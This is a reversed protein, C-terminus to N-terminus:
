LSLEVPSVLVADADAYIWDGPKIRVNGFSVALGEAGPLADAAARRATTGLAKVGFDLENIQPTDRIVGHIVAGAWGNEVLRAALMDGMLAVRMSGGGDIVLVRGRGETGSMEKVPIHNEFTKVVACPGCFEMRKGFGRFQLEIIDVSHENADFLDPTIISPM